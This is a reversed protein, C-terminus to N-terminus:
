SLERQVMLRSILAGFSCVATLVALGIRLSLSDPPALVATVAEGLGFLLAAAMWRISWAHRVIERWNDLFTM